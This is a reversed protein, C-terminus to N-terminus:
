SIPRTEDLNLLIEVVAKKNKLLKKAEVTVLKQM